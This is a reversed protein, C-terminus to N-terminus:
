PGERQRIGGEPLKSILCAAVGQRIDFVNDDKSGDPRRQRKTTSGYLDMIGIQGATHMRPRRM